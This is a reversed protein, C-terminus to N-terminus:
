AFALKLAKRVLAGFLDWGGDVSREFRPLLARASGCHRM